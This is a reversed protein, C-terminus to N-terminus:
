VLIVGKLVMSSEDIAYVVGDEFIMAFVDFDFQYHAIWEGTHDAVSVMNNYSDLVWCHNDWYQVKSNRIKHHAVIDKSSLPSLTAPMILSIFIREVNKLASTISFDGKKQASKIEPLWRKMRQYYQEMLSEIEIESTITEENGSTGKADEMVKGRIRKEMSKIDIEYRTNRSIIILKKGDLSSSFPDTYKADYYDRIFIPNCKYEALFERTDLTFIQIYGKTQYYYYFAIWNEKISFTTFVPRRNASEINDNSYPRTNKYIPYVFIELFESLENKFRQISGQRRYIKENKVVLYPTNSFDSEVPYIVITGNPSVAFFNKLNQDFGVYSMDKCKVTQLRVKRELDLLEIKSHDSLVLAYIGRITIYLPTGPKYYLSETQYDSGPTSTYWFNHDTTYRVLDIDETGGSHVLDDWDPCDNGFWCQYDEKYKQIERISLEYSNEDFVYCIREYDDRLYLDNSKWFLYGKNGRTQCGSGLEINKQYDFVHIWNDDRVAFIKNDRIAFRGRYASIYTRMGDMQLQKFGSLYNIKASLISSQLGLLTLNKQSIDERVEEIMLFSDPWSILQMRYRMLLRIYRRHNNSVRPNYSFDVLQTVIENYWGMKIYGSIYFPDKLLKAIGKYDRVVCLATYCERLKRTNYHIKGSKYYVSEQNLYFNAYKRYLNKISYTIKSNQNNFIRNNEVSLMEKVKRYIIGHRFRLHSIGFKQSEIFFGSLDEHIRSWLFMYVFRLGNGNEPIHWKDYKSKVKELLDKDNLLLNLLDQESIGDRAISIYGLVQYYFVPELFQEQYSLRKGILADTEAPYNEPDIEKSWSPIRALDNCLLHLYLMTMEEPLIEMLQDMQNLTIKRNMRALIDKIIEGAYKKVIPQITFINENSVTDTKKLCFHDANLIIMTINSPLKMDFLSGKINKWDSIQDIGDLIIYYPTESKYQALFKSFDEVLNEYSLPVLIEKKVGLVKEINYALRSMVSLIQNGEPITDVFIAACHQPNKNQFHRMLFSKGSGSKGNCLIVKGHKDHIFKSFRCYTENIEIYEEEVTDNIRFAEEEIDREKELTEKIREDIVERLYESTKKAFTETQDLEIIHKQFRSNPIDFLRKQLAIAREPFDDDKVPLTSNEDSTEFQKRVIMITHDQVEPNSLVGSVMFEQETASVNYIGTSTETDINNFIIHKLESETESDYDPKLLYQVNLSNEDKLYWQNMTRLHIADDKRILSNVIENWDSELIISPLPIWGYRMGQLILFNPKPSLKQCRRIENLCLKLIQNNKSDEDSIGWRLDVAQFSFNNERCYKEIEPFVSEILINREKEFDLFTSSVFLRIMRSSM